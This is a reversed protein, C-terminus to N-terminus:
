SISEKNWNVMECPCAACRIRKERSFGSRFRGHMSRICEDKPKEENIQFITPTM